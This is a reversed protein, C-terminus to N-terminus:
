VIFRGTAFTYSQVVMWAASAALLVTAARPRRRYLDAGLLYLPIFAIEYRMMGQWFTLSTILLWVGASFLTFSLPIRRWNVAFYVLAAFGVVGLVVDSLFLFNFNAEGNGQSVEWTRQLGSWPAVIQRGGYSASQQVTTYAFFDGTQIKAYQFFLVVPALAGLIEVVGGDVRRRRWLYDILLVPVLIVGTIRMAVAVGAAISARGYDGRRMYYLSAITGAMFVSDTYLVSLFVADPWFALMWCAFRAAGQDGRRELLVLRALFFLAVFEGVTNVIIGTTITDRFIFSFTKLLIPLGPYFGWLHGIHGPVLDLPGSPYGKETIDIYNQGDWYGFTRTIDQYSPHGHVTSTSWVVLVPVLFSVLKAAIFPTLAARLAPSRDAAARARSAQTTLADAVSALSAM